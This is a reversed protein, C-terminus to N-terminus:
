ENRLILSKKFDDFDILRNNEFQKIGINLEDKIKKDSIINLTEVISECTDQRLLAFIRKMVKSISLRTVM